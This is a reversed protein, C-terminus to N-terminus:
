MAGPDAEHPLPIALAELLDGKLALLRYVAFMELYQANIANARSVFLENQADLVDLLTRRALEFQDKYAGVVRANNASQLSFAKRRDRASQMGAWTKRVDEEVGRATKARQDKAQAERYMFEQRRAVDAGGRYLNWNMVVLASADINRGPLGSLNHGDQGQLQLDFKPSFASKTGEYERQAVLYDANAISITPNDALSILVEQEVNKELRDSPAPTDRLRGPKRGVDRLFDGEATDLDARANAEEAQAAELRAAAQRNDALSTKGARTSDLIKDLISEHAHVNERAIQLLKHQRLVNLYSEVASLGQLEAAERVRHSASLVRAQQRLNEYRAAGGDFLLQTLTIGSNYRWLNQEHSGDSNLITPNDTHEYGGDIRLDISPRYLAEAQNLEEDTARRNNATIGYDPSTTVSIGVAERLTIEAPSKKAINVPATACLLLAVATGAVLRKIFARAILDTEM